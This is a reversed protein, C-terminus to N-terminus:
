EVDSWQISPMLLCCLEFQAIVSGQPQRQRSAQRSNTTISSGFINIHTCPHDHIFAGVTCQEYLHKMKSKHNVNVVSQIELQTPLDVCLVQILCSQNSPLWCKAQPHLANKVHRSLSWKRSCLSGWWRQSSWVRKRLLIWPSQSLNEFCQFLWGKDPLPLFIIGRTHIGKQGKNM